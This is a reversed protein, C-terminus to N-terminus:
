SKQLLFRLFNEWYTILVQVKYQRLFVVEKQRKQIFIITKRLYLLKLRFCKESLKRELFIGLWKKVRTHYFDFSCLAFYSLANKIKNTHLNENTQRYKKMRFRFNCMM